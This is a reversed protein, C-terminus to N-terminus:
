GLAAEVLEAFARDSPERKRLRMEARVRELVARAQETSLDGLGLEAARRKISMPGSYHCLAVYARNGVVAPSWANFAWEGGEHLVYHVEAAHSFATQGVGPLHPPIPQNWVDAVFESLEQLGDLRIGTDYGYFLQLISALVALNAVGAREGLGNVSGELIEAGGELAALQGAIALDFDDHSHIAVPTEGVVEKVQRVHHRYVAPMCPACIDDLRIIDAGATKLRGAITELWALDLRSFDMLLASITAGREKGYRVAECALDLAAERSVKLGGMSEVLRHNYDSVAFALCVIDAGVDVCFDIEQRCHAPNLAATPHVLAQVQLKLGLKKIQRIEEPDDHHMEVIPVGVADVRRAYEVVDELRLSVGGVQRGERLTLDVLQIKPPLRMEARVREDFNYPSVAWMGERYDRREAM